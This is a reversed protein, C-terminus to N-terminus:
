QFCNAIGFAMKLGMVDQREKPFLAVVHGKGRHIAVQGKKDLGADYAPRSSLFIRLGSANPVLMYPVVLMVIVENARMAPLLDFEEIRRDINKLLCYGFLISKNKLAVM